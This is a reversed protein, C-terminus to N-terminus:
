LSIYKQPFEKIGNCPGGENWGQYIIGGKLITPCCDICGYCTESCRNGNFGNGGMLYGQDNLKSNGHEHGVFYYRLNSFITKLYKFAEEGSEKAYFGSANWHSLLYVHKVNLTEFRKNVETWNIDKMESVKTTNDLVIFGSNGMVYYSATYQYPIPQEEFNFKPDPFKNPDEWISTHADIAFWLLYQRGYGTDMKGNGDRSYEHNGIVTIMPKSFFKDTLQQEFFKTNLGGTRCDYFNDGGFVIADIDDINKLICKNLVDQSGRLSFRYEDGTYIQPDFMMLLSPDVDDIPYNFKISALQQRNIDYIDLKNEGKCNVQLSKITIDGWGFYGPFKKEYTFPYETENLIIYKAEASLFSIRVLPGNNLFSNVLEDSRTVPTIRM